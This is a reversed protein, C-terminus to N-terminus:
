GQGVRDAATMPPSTPRGMESLEVSEAPADVDHSEEPLQQLRGFPTTNMASAVNEATSTPTAPLRVTPSTSSM